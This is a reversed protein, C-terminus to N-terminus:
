YTGGLEIIRKQAQIVKDAYSATNGSKKIFSKYANITDSKARRITYYFEALNYDYDPNTPEVIRAKQFDQTAHINNSNGGKGAYCWARFSYAQAATVGSPNGDIIKTFDAIAADYNLQAKYAQGRLLLADSNAADSSLVANCDAIASDYLAKNKAAALFYDDARLLYLQTTKSFALANTYEVVAKEYDQQADYCNGLKQYVASDNKGSELYHSYATISASYNKQDFYINGMSLFLAPDSIGLETAKQFDTIALATQNNAYYANGRALYFTSETPKITILATYDTAAMDYLKQQYLLESRYVLATYNKPDFALARNFDAFALDSKQTKTYLIGRQVYCDAIDPKIIICQTYDAIAKDYDSADTYLRARNLYADFYKPYLAVASGYDAAAGVIDKSAAKNLARLFFGEPVTKDLEIAKSANSTGSVYDGVAYDSFSQYYRLLAQFTNENIIIKKRTNQRDLQNTSSTYQNRLAEIESFDNKISSNFARIVM